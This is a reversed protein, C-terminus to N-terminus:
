KTASAPIFAGVIKGKGPVWAACANLIARRFGEPEPVGPLTLAVQGGKTLVELTGSKYFDDFSGEAIRVDEVDALAVEHTPAPKLGRQIMVRRNTVTYRRALFPLIKKFYLPALLLWGLPALFVSRILTKGLNAAAPSADVVSPWAERIVAEGTQPPTLGAVAQRPPAPQSNSPDGPAPPATLQSQDMVM